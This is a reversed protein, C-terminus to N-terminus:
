FARWSYVVKGWILVSELEKGAIVRPPYAPNLSVLVICDRQKQIRKVVGDEGNIIVVAIEGSEVDPQLHVLVLEGDRIDPSMSDGTVRFYNHEEPNKLGPPVIHRGEYDAVAYMGPGAAVSAVVPVTISFDAPFASSLSNIGTLYNMDVNFIDAFAELTEFDPEREGREYMSIASKSIGMKTALEGQTFGAAKRLRRLVMPFVGM